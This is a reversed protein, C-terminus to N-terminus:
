RKKPAKPAKPVKPARVTAMGLPTKEFAIHEDQEVM